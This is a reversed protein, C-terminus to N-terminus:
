NLSPSMTVAAVRAPLARTSACLLSVAVPLRHWQCHWHRGSHISVPLDIHDSADSDDDDHHQDDDHDSSTVGTGAEPQTACSAQGSLSGTCQCIWQFPTGTGWQWHCHGPRLRRRWQCQSQCQCLMGNCHDCTTSSSASTTTSYRVTTTSTYQLCVPVPMFDLRLISYVCLTTYLKYYWKLL